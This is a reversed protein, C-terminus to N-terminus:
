LKEVPASTSQAWRWFTFAMATPILTYWVLPRVVAFADERPLILVFALGIAVAAKAINTPRGAAWSAIKVLGFGLVILIWPGPYGFNAYTEAIFSYGLGSGNAAQAPSVTAILWADYDSHAAPHAATGFINPLADLLALAYGSGGDFERTSPIFMVSYEITTMSNGMERVGALLPTNVSTLATVYDSPGTGSKERTVAIVPILVVLVFLAAPILVQPKVPHVTQSFLLLWALAPMLAPGRNGLLLNAATEAAIVAASIAVLSQRRQSGALLFFSGPILFPALIHPLASPDLSQHSTRGAYLGIYGASQVASLDQGFAILAFPLAVAVLLGGVIRLSAGSGPACNLEPSDTARGFALAACAGLHLAALGAAVMAVSTLLVDSPFALIDTAFGYIFVGQDLLGIAFLIAQGANFAIASLMFLGYPDFLSGTAAVWSWTMWAVLAVLLISFFHASDQSNGILAPVVLTAILVALSVFAHAVFIQRIRMPTKSVAHRTTVLPRGYPAARGMM